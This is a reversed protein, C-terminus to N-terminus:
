DTKSDTTASTVTANEEKPKEETEPKAADKDTEPKAADTAESAPVAEERRKRKKLQSLPRGTKEEAKIEEVSEKKEVVSVAAPTTEDIANKKEEPQSEVIKEEKSVVKPAIIEEGKATVEVKKDSTEAVGSEGNETKKDNGQPTQTEAKTSNSKSSLSRKNKPITANETAVAHKSEGCGM